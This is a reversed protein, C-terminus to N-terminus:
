RNEYSSLQTATRALGMQGADKPVDPLDASSGVKNDCRGQHREIFPTRLIIKDSSRIRFAVM